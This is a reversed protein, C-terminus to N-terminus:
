KLVLNVIVLSLIYLLWEFENELIRHRAGVSRILKGVQRRHNEHWQLQSAGHWSQVVSAHTVACRTNCKQFQVNIVYAFVGRGPISGPDEAHCASISVVISGRIQYITVVNRRKSQWVAASFVHACRTCVGIIIKVSIWVVGCGVLYLTLDLPYVVHLRM